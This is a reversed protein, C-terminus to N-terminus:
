VTCPPSRRVSLPDTVCGTWRILAATPHCFPTGAVVRYRQRCRQALGLSIVM